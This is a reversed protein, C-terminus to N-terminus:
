TKCDFMELILFPSTAESGAQRNGTDQLWASTIFYRNSRLNERFVAEAQNLGLSFLGL